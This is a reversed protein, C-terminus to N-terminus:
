LPPRLRLEPMPEPQYPGFQSEHQALAAELESVARVARRLADRETTTLPQGAADGTTRKAAYALPRSQTALELQEDLTPGTARSDVAETYHKLHRRLARLETVMRMYRQECWSPGASGDDRPAFRDLLHEAGRNGYVHAMHMMTRGRMAINLQGEGRKLAIRLVRNRVTPLRGTLRDSWDKTTLLMGLAVGLLRSAVDRRPFKGTGPVPKEAGPVDRQWNDARGELHTAPLWVPEDEYDQLRRDLLLAFTPWRPHARDFLHVPFNSCLGGDALLCRRLTRNTKPRNKTPRPAEYDMAYVPVLEFLLPFCMSLRAAVVIPMQGSPLERLESARREPQDGGVRPGIRVPRPEEPDSASHPKYPKAVADLAKMIHPPFIRAWEEPLYYLHTSVDDLPLRVPRGLAVNSTFM